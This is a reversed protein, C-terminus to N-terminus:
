YGMRHKNIIYERVISSRVIDDESFEVHRFKSIRKLIDLFKSIGNIDDKKILDTQSKDGCFVIKCDDGLRTIISDLEHFNMDQCEDVILIANKLTIGRIFSTPVFEYMDQEKLRLMVDDVNPMLERFIAIYPQEYVAIKEEESGPLYGIDRVPVISRVVVLKKYPTERSLIDKLALYIALFTKGSGAMGHLVLNNEWEAFVRGQNNTLPQIKILSDYRIKKTSVVRPISDKQATRGM